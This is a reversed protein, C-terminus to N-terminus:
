RSSPRTFLASDIPAGRTRMLDAVAPMNSAPAFSGEILGGAATRDIAFSFIDSLELENGEAGLVEAVRLVRHRDDRLRAVEIVIEFAGAIIEMAGEGYRPRLESSIRLLGKRLSTASRAVVLGDAGDCAAGVVAETVAPSSLEAFLRVYPARAVLAIADSADLSGLESAPAIGPRDAALNGAYVVEPEALSAAFAGLLQEVGGDRPGVILINLRALLCQQLFTALTRSATGRRVLDDLTGSLRRSRTIMAVTNAGPSLTASLTTGDAFRREVQTADGLPVSSRVCLRAVAWRVALACSFSLDSLAARGARSVTIRDPAVIAVDTVNPDSLLEGLPGLEVLEARAMALVREPPLHTAVARESSFATWAERLLQEIKSALEANVEGELDEPHLLRAVRDVLLRTADLVAAKLTPDEEGIGSSTTRSPTLLSPDPAAVPSSRVLAARVPARTLEEEEDASPRATATAGPQSDGVTPLPQRPPVSPLPVAASAEQTSSSSPEIRLIFDGIYIRDGERVITAQTIRRRNVYTGNTSNLDTVIFRGDRYLLRAHRKSVNGKPLMLDNGQVRGVSIETGEFMERREAGGKEHIVLAFM